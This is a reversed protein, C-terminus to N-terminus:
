IDRDHEEPHRNYGALRWQLQDGWQFDGKTQEYGRFSWRGCARETGKVPPWPDLSIIIMLVYGTKVIIHVLNQDIHQWWLAWWHKSAAITTRSASWILPAKGTPLERKMWLAAVFYPAQLLLVCLPLVHYICGTLPLKNITFTRMYTNAHVSASDNYKM